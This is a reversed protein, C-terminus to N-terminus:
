GIRHVLPRRSFPVQELLTRLVRLTTASALLREGDLAVWSGKHSASHTRLWEYEITRDSDACTEAVVVPPRLLKRLAVVRSDSLVHAPAAELIAFAKPAQETDLLQQAAALFLFTDPDPHALGLRPRFEELRHERRAPQPVVVVGLQPRVRDYVPRQYQHEIGSQSAAAALSGRTQLSRQFSGRAALAASDQSAFQASRDLTSTSM